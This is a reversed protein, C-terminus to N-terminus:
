AIRYGENNAWMAAQEYKDFGHKAITQGDWVDWVRVARENRETYTIDDPLINCVPRTDDPLENTAVQALHSEPSEASLQNFPNM